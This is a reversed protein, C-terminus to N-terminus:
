KNLGWVTAGMSVEKTGEIEVKDHAEALEIAWM